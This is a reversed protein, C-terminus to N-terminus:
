CISQNALNFAFCVVFALFLPDRKFFPFIMSFKLKSNSILDRTAM